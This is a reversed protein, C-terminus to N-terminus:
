CEGSDIITITKSTDGSPSGLGEAERVVEMGAVVSGFVVHKGDLWKTEATCLFFQSGNTDPGANAMSLTGPGKHPLIFNEDPFSEGYISKGGTGDGKTFDGGQCMFQPIVRHFTSGKYGFGKEGTCLARFNECTKPVVDSRLEIVIRGVLKDEVQIDFYVKPRNLTPSSMINEYISKISGAAVIDMIEESYIDFLMTRALNSIKWSMSEKMEVRLSLVITILVNKIQMPIDKKNRKSLEVIGQVMEWSTLGRFQSFGPDVKTVIELLEKCLSIKRKLQENTLKELSLEGRGYLQSLIRKTIVVQYNNPHLLSETQKLFAEHQSVPDTTSGLALETKSLLSEVQDGAVFNRCSMCTWPVNFFSNSTATSNEEKMGKTFWKEQEERKKSEESKEEKKFIDPNLEIDDLLDDLDSDSDTDEKKEDQIEEVQKKDELKEPRVASPLLYGKKPCGPCAVSSMFSGLETPDQCRNCCCTFYWLNAIKNQRSPMCTLLSTYTINIEEGCKIRKQAYVHMTNDEQIAHRANYSCSHSMFAFTPYLAQGECGPQPIFKVAHTVLLSICMNVEDETFGLDKLKCGELLLGSIVMEEREVAEPCYKLRDEHHNKLLGIHRWMEPNETKCLLLRLVTISEYQSSEVTFDEIKPFKPFVQCEQDKHPNSVSCEENCFPFNCSSCTVEGTVPNLCTLCKPKVNRSPGVAAPPEAIILELPEIDRTAVVYRGLGPANEVKFPLCSDKARHKSLCYPSCAYVACSSCSPITPSSECDSSCLFCVSM